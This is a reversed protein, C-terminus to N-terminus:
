CVCMDIRSSTHNSRPATRPGPRRAGPGLRRLRGLSQDDALDEEVAELFPPRSSAASPSSTRKSHSRRDQAARRRGPGQAIAWVVKVVNGSAKIKAQGNSGTVNKFTWKDPHIELRGKLNRVPYPLRDWTIECREALDIDADFTIRGEPRADPGTMPERCVRRECQGIRQGQLWRRGQSRRRPMANKIADDIPLSEAEIDLKVVADPGPNWITGTLKLPRGSLSNLDVSLTNKEFILDGTLHDLPYPFHRYIRRSM